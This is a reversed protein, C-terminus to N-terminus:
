MDYKPMSKPARSRRAERIMRILYVVGFGAMACLFPLAPIQYRPMTVPGGAFLYFFAFAGFILGPKWKWKILWLLLTWAAFLYLLATAALFPLAPLLLVLRGDLYFNLAAFVGRERLVSLTGRGHVSLANNELFTPLDPLLMAYQPLHTRLFAAPHDRILDMYRTNKWANKSRINPFDEPHESLFAEANRRMRERLIESNEHTVASLIASGSHYYMEGRNSDMDFDAGARYNRLMWPLLLSSFVLAVTGWAYFTKRSFGFFAAALVPMALVLLPTNIPKLYAGFALLVCTAAFFVLRRERWARLIFYLQWACLLGLLSDALILPAAAVSTLNLAYFSAAVLGGARGAFFRGCLGAPYCALASVLCGLLAPVTLSNGFLFFVGALFLPYGPPRLTAPLASGPSESYAGDSLLAKAPLLYTQSDPRLLLDGGQTLAPLACLIRLLLAAAVIGWLWRRFCKESEMNGM